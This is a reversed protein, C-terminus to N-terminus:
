GRSSGLGVILNIATAFIVTGLVYSTMAHRLATGRVARTQLDTDSVAYCMGLTFALYAFDLYSPQEEQNFDIGGTEDAYYLLAYRLTYVTHVVFWASVVSAIGVGAAVNDPAGPESTAVLLYVVGAISAVSALLFIAETTSRTPDERTAHAETQTSTMPGIVLWTWFTYVVGASIWGAAPAYQVGILAASVGATLLGVLAAVVVRAAAPAKNGLGSVNIM